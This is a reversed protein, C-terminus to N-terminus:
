KELNFLLSAASNNLLHVNLCSGYQKRYSYWKANEETIPSLSIQEM